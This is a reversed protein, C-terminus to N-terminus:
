CVAGYALSYRASGSVGPKATNRRRVAPAALKAAPMQDTLFPALEHDGFAGNAIEQLAIEAISTGAATVRPEAGANLARARAAAAVTLVFPNPLVNQCMFVVHADM